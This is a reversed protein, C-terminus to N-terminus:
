DRRPRLRDLEGGRYVGLVVGAREWSRRVRDVPTSRAWYSQSLWGVIRDMDLRSRDDDIEDDGNTWRM